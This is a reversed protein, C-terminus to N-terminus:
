LVRKITDVVDPINLFTLYTGLPNYTPQAACVQWKAPLLGKNQLSGVHAGFPHQGFKCIDAFVIGTVGRMTELLGATIGSLFPSDIVKVAVGLEAQVIQAAKLSTPVGNGYTVVAIQASLDGYVTVEDFSAVQGPATYPMEWLSDKDDQCVHKLNLLNTCDVSMVVRGRQAQAVANRMGRAYDPGNSYCVVDIGPPIHLSNHTHFNGGFVGRDFGQLRVVMGCPQKGSTLWNMIAAEFFQDVGCDLYKAYPIEVIPTLGVQSYGIGVGILSTEDPPFDKVRLPYKKALGDTVLYYGGHEVDEGIYVLKPNETLLEDFVRTMHKRMVHTDKAKVSANGANPPPRVVPPAPGEPRYLPQCTVQQVHNRTTIKPENVAKDFARRALDWTDVYMAHLDEWSTFGAAVVQASTSLLPNHKMVREIEDPALYAQQRDTAAHGFRRPLNKLLLFAPRKARRSYEIADRSARWVACMDCGDAEFFRIQLKKVFRKQLWGYGKLSIAIGNDSVMFVVPCKFSRYDAYEALNIASLFQAHNVSGDGVSVFNVASPEMLSAQGLQYALASGLARGVAQPAQSALTSTVIFDHKGGGIACHNGGTVPDLSSVVHGRARDLLIDHLDRGSKLQRAVQAATHRYHLAMGDTERLCAGVVAALEEGGPGITYFGHGLFSAVRSEVHLLSTAYAARVVLLAQEKSVGAEDFSTHGPTVVCSGAALQEQFAHAEKMEPMNALEAARTRRLEPLDVAADDSSISEESSGAKKGYWEDRSPVAVKPAVEGSKLYGWGWPRLAACTRRM